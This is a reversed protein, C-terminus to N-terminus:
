ICANDIFPPSKVVTSGTERMQENGVVLLLSSYVDSWGGLPALTCPDASVTWHTIAQTMVDFGLFPPPPAHVM